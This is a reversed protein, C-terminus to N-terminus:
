IELLVNIWRAIVAHARIDDYLTSHMLNNESHPIGEPNLQVVAWFGPPTPEASVVWFLHRIAISPGFLMALLSLMMLVPITAICSVWWLLYLIPYLIIPGIVNKWGYSVAVAFAGGAIAIFQRTGIWTPRVFNVICAVLLIISYIATVHGRIKYLAGDKQNENELKKGIDGLNHKRGIDFMDLWHAAGQAMFSWIRMVLTAFLTAAGMVASAEDGAARIILMREASFTPLTCPKEGAIRLAFIGFIFFLPFALLSTSTVIFWSPLSFYKMVFYAINGLSIVIGSSASLIKARGVPRPWAQLFPTSLCVIGKVKDKISEHNSALLAINGGHSHAIVIQLAEPNEKSIAGIHERLQHAAM